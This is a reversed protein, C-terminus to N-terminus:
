NKIEFLYLRYFFKTSAPVTILPVILFPCIKCKPGSEFPDKLATYTYDIYHMLTETFNAFHPCIQM